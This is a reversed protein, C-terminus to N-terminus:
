EDPFVEHSATITLPRRKANEVARWVYAGVIGQGILVLSGTFLVSLIIPTYGTQDINGLMYNVLVVTGAILSVAAGLAGIWLLATIPTDSFAFVSDLM